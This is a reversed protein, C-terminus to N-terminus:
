TFFAKLTTRWIFADDTINQIEFLPTESFFLFFFFFPNNHFFMFHTERENGFTMLRNETSAFKGGNGLIFTKKRKRKKKERFSIIYRSKAKEGM